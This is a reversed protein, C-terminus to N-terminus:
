KPLEYEGVDYTASGEPAGNGNYTGKGKIGKLKGTGGRFSWAGEASVRIWIRTYTTVCDHSGNQDRTYHFATIPPLSRGGAM